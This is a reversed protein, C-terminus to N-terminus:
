QNGFLVLVKSSTGWLSVPINRCKKANGNETFSTVSAGKSMTCNTMYKSLILQPDHVVILNELLSYKAIVQSLINKVISQDISETNILIVKVSRNKLSFKIVAEIENMVSVISSNWYFLVTKGNLQLNGPAVFRVEPVEKAPESKENQTNSLADSKLGSAVEYSPEASRKMEMEACKSRMKAPKPCMVPQASPAFGGVALDSVGEPLPLPQSVTEVSGTKNRVNKDVALFSTYETLLNYTLGLNTIEKIREDCSSLKNYDGLFAIRQRAWLYKLASNKGSVMKKDINFSQTYTDKGGTFGRVEITGTPEGKWKGYVIIPRSAMVDPIAIPEVDYVSFKNYSCKIQTLVPSAIYKRFSEATEAGNEPKTVIYPEGGGVHALGEILFRNVSSGVGFAFVNSKDLNNRILEFADTEFNVYGDTVVIISRSSADSRPLKMSTELAPLLETGGGGQQNDIVDIAKTINEKTAPLSRSSMVTSGGAFLVVNFCDVTRLGSILNRLLTKSIQLPFGNMSGSVDVVIIYERPPIQANTVHEPPQMIMCFFNEKEGKYLLVGSEIKDGALRYKLIFDRNGGDSECKDLTLSAVAANDYLISVKHTACIMEQIPMGSNVGVKIDFTYPPKQGQKLYPNAIWKDTPKAESVATNSYRPGVVTPYVFEYINNVPILLETYRLEVKITDGPMINAVNMQFVNPRQQELLAASKGEQKAAEYEVRAQQREKVQAEICREGITMKLAYVAARTSGPFVYMAEIPKQGNNHYVQTVVVDAIVGSINVDASTSLLPMDAKENDSCQVYFYPSLTKDQEADEQAPILSCLSLVVTAASKFVTKKM